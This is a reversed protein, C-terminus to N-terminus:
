LSWLDDKEINNVMPCGATGHVMPLAYHGKTKLGSSVM